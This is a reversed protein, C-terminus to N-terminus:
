VTQVCRERLRYQCYASVAYTACQCTRDGSVLSPFGYSLVLLLAKGVTWICAVAMPLTSNGALRAREGAADCPQACCGGEESTDLARDRGPVMKPGTGRRRVAIRWLQLSRCRGRGDDACPGGLAGGRARWSMRTRVRTFIM